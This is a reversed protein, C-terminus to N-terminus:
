VSLCWHVRFWAAGLNREVELDADEEAIAPGTAPAALWSDECRRKSQEMLEGRRASMRQWKSVKMGVPSTIGRRKEIMEAGNDVVRLRERFAALVTFGKCAYSRMSAINKPADALPTYFV